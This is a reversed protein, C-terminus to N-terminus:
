VDILGENGTKIDNNINEKDPNLESHEEKAFVEEDELSQEPMSSLFEGECSFDLEYVIESEVDEQINDSTIDLEDETCDPSDEKVVEDSEPEVEIKDTAVDVESEEETYFGNEFSYDDVENLLHPDLEESKEDEKFLESVDEQSKEEKESTNTKDQIDESLVADSYDKIVKNKQKINLMDYIDQNDSTEPTKNDTISKDEPISNDTDETEEPSTFEINDLNVVATEYNLDSFDSEVEELHSLPQISLSYSDTEVASTLNISPVEEIDDLEQISVSRPIFPSDEGLVTNGTNKVLGIATAVTSLTLFSRFFLKNTDM